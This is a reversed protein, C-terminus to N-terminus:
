ERRGRVGEDIVLKPDFYNDIVGNESRLTVGDLSCRDMFLYKDDGSFPLYSYFPKTGVGLFVKFGANVLAKHKESTVNEGNVNESIVWEGYPYVYLDTEGVISEVQNKWKSVDSAFKEDSVSKMHGHAFSHSAFQWGSNKLFAVVEKAKSIESERNESGEQTRYGLIGSFGTLCMIGRAGEFSFDPHSQIFSELICVFENDFSIGAGFTEAGIKGNEIVLRDAMGKGSKNPDYVVDDFSLVLPKKGEPFLFAKKKAKGDVIEYTDRIDCLVYNNEYLLTLIKKFESAVLCDADYHVAMDNSVRFAIDPNAVLCHTFLHIVEGNYLALSNGSTKLAQSVNIEATAIAVGEATEVRGAMETMEATEVRGLPVTELAFAQNNALESVVSLLMCFIIMWIVCSCFLKKKSM